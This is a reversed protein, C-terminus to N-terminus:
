NVYLHLMLYDPIQWVRVKCSEEIIIVEFHEAVFSYTQTALERQGMQSELRRAKALM